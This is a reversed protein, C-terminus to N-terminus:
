QLLEARPPFPTSGRLSAPDEWFLRRESAANNVFVMGRHVHPLTPLVKKVVDRYQAIPFLKIVRLSPWAPNTRGATGLSQRMPGVVDVEAARLRMALPWEALKQDM